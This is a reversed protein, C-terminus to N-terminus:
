RVIKLREITKIWGREAALFNIYSDRLQSPAHRLPVFKLYETADLLDVSRAYREIRGLITNKKEALRRDRRFVHNDKKFTRTESIKRKFRVKRPADDMKNNSVFNRGM